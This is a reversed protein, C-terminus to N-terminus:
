SLKSAAAKDIIFTCNAHNQLFSAPVADTISGEISWKIVEAKAEGDALLVIEKAALITGIGMSLAQRPVEFASQFYRSNAQITESALDVVSTVSDIKAGPENFAVHGNTGIGLLQLDIGGQRKILKEIKECETNPDIAEGNFLFINERKFNVQDIFNSKLFYRFSQRHNESLGLYEDLNFIKVSSFDLGSTKHLKVLERYLGLPTRGTALGLVIKSNKKIKTAFLEAAKESMAQSNDCIVVKMKFM